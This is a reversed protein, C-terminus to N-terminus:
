LSDKDIGDWGKGVTSSTDQELVLPQLSKVEFITILVSDPECVQLKHPEWFKPNFPYTKMFTYAAEYASQGEVSASADFKSLGAWGWVHWIKM